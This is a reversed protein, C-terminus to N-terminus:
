REPLDDHAAAASDCAQTRAVRLSQDRGELLLRRVPPPPSSSGLYADTQEVAGDGVPYMMETFSMGVDSGRREWVDGLVAFYPEVWGALELEQDPQRFGGMVARMTALPLDGEVLVTWAAAKAEALPRAARTAAAYRHGADTPDREEEADVAEDEIVGGLALSRLLHWRLETDVILGKVETDGALLRRILDLDDGARAASAFARAFTLQADSGPAADYLAARAYDALRRRAPERNAPDGFTVAAAEANALLVAIVAIEDEGALNALVLELYRRAPLEADRLMDWTASWCLGRALSDSMTGLSATLAALSREDFRIKTYALDGDNLLVLDPQAKGVLSEVATQHGVVDLEVRERMGLAGGGDLDYLGIGLRHSRLTPYAPDAEQCVVVTALGGSPDTGMEARMTNVGATSLWVAAWSGLDRGSTEELAGLFDGLDTNGWAHRAFYARVGAFFQDEGVWAVLQRLVSAGKAYTIGDFNTKMTEVDPADAVIPHTSPLQDQRYAWTKYRSAFITWASRFRTASVLAHNSAFTAFSENLWLDDWWRMTVLDGFWMHAMEHLITDARGAREAETVKSRFLHRESFTICGANEMAGFNFEPVFLQDYKGFPYAIGFLEEFFDFGAATIEFIEDADLHRALSQRCYLGLDINRHRTHVAQYPGAVIAGLYTSMRETPEFRWRGAAGPEPRSAVRANSVVEWGPPADVEFRYTAKCDPQDFCAFVRHADFPEFQTHLYVAGDTPDVFRHLGVGTHEYACRAAVVLENDAALGDVALRGRARDFAEAPLPRGNLTASTVEEAVLNVFTAADPTAARFRITAESAFTVDGTLGLVVEYSVDSVLAARQRAEERTLNSDTAPM